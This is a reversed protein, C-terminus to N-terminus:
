IVGAAGATEHTSSFALPPRRRASELAASAGLRRRDGGSGSRGEATIGALSHQLRQVLLTERRQTTETKTAIELAQRAGVVIVLRKGRTIATYLLNRQLMVFHQSHLVIVVCPFESGQSKHITVAYALELEELRSPPYDVVRGDLEVLVRQETSDFGAITGIEGNFVELDYNNSTQMVRDGQRFRRGAWKPAAEASNLLEQLRANLNEVGLIGRRMPALVQIDRVPVFGFKKPIRSVVLDEVEALAAAPDERHAVFFDAADPDLGRIPMEGHIVRHANVVILSMQAQRFIETLRVLPIEGSDILDGLVRGPGVSPLQDVDGVFILRASDPLAQLLHRALPTDLMSAEDIVLLDAELPNEEDRTFDHGQYGLLRHITKAERGTAESLRKAARGTPAALEVTLGALSAVYVIGKTLTTKGTGPGGTLVMVKSAVMERLTERQAEALEIREQTEFSGIAVEVDVKLPPAAAALLAELRKAVTREAVELRRLYIAQGAARLRDSELETKIASSVLADGVALLERTRGCLEEHRLFMHGERASAEELSHLTGAGARQPSDRPLGQARAIADARHFGIGRVETLRYPNKRVVDIAQDAFRQYIKVAYASSIGYGQLFIMADRIKRTDKFAELIQRKRKKGIGHVEVLRDPEKDLVGLTEHEFKKVIRKALKSDIGDIFGALYREIGELSAPEVPTFSSAKFQRGFKPHEVWDGGFQLHDGPRVGLFSGVAKIRGAGESDVLLVSWGTEENCHLIREVAGEVTVRSLEDSLALQRDM